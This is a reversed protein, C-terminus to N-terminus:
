VRPISLFQQYIKDNPLLWAINEFRCHKFSCNVFIGIGGYSRGKEAIVLYEAINGGWFGCYSLKTEGRIVALCPGKLTCKSFTVGDLINRERNEFLLSVNITKNEVIDGSSIRALDDIASLRHQLRVGAVLFLVAILCPTIITLLWRADENSVGIGASVVIGLLLLTKMILDVWGWFSEAHRLPKIAYLIFKIISRAWYM